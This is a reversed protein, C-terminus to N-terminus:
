SPITVCPILDMQLTPQGTWVEEFMGTTPTSDVGVYPPKAHHSGQLHCSPRPAEWPGQQIWGWAEAVVTGQSKGSPDQFQM